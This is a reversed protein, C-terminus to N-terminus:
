RASKQLEADAPMVKDGKEDAAHSLAPFLGGIAITICCLMLGRATLTCKKM